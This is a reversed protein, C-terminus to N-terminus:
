DKGEKAEGCNTVESLKVYNFVYKHISTLLTSGNNHTAGGPPRLLRM